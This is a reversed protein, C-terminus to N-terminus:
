FDDDEDIGRDFDDFGSFDDDLPVTEESEEEPDISGIRDKKVGSDDTSKPLPTSGPKQISKSSKQNKKSNKM